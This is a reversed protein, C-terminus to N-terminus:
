CRVPGLTENGPLWYRPPRSPSNTVDHRPRLGHCAFSRRTDSSPLVRSSRYLLDGVLQFPLASTPQCPLRVSGYYLRLRLLTRHPCSTWKFPDAAIDLRPSPVVTCLSPSNRWQAANSCPLYLKARPLITSSGSAYFACTRNQSPCSLKRGHNSITASWM